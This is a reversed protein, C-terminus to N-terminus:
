KIGNGTISKDDEKAKKMEKIIKRLEPMKETAYSLSFAKMDKHSLIFERLLRRDKKGLERLMWGAGKQVYIDSDYVLKEALRMTLELKNKKILKYTSVIATRRIWPNRSEIMQKVEGTLDINNVLIEGLISSSLCDIHDWSKARELRQMIFKWTELNFKKKQNGLIFVALNMEEHNGSKWLEDFLNYAEYIDIDKYDKSIKRLQPVRVGYFAYQSKLYRKSNEARKKDGLSALEQRIKEIELDPNSVGDGSKSLSFNSNTSLSVALIKSKRPVSFRKIKWTKPLKKIEESM